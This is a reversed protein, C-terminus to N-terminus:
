VEGAGTGLLAMMEGERERERERILITKLFLSIAGQKVLSTRLGEEEKAERGGGKDEVEVLVGQAEGDSVLILSM